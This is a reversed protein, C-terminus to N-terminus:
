GGYVATADAILQSLLNSQAAKDGAVVGQATLDAASAASLAAATAAQSAQDTVTKAAQVDLAALDAAVDAPAVRRRTPNSPLMTLYWQLLTKQRDPLSSAAVHAKLAAIEQAWTTAPAPSPQPPPAPTVGAFPDDTTIPAALANVAAM